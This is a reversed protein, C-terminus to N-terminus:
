IISMSNQSFKFTIEQNTLSSFCQQENMEKLNAM